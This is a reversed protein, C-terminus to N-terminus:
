SARRAADLMGDREPGLFGMALLVLDAKLEFESGPVPEFTSAATGNSWRSRRARAADHRPGDRRRQLARTSISYLASAAKRTRRRSASSTRGCRGRTARRARTPRGRCCSSSTSALARGPPARHRPLRRRHRRRRHHHRAQGERTIFETTTAARRRGRLPPEALTLYDMAFHIGQLERGPVPLDRPATPAAPWCSRTSTAGCSTSRRRRRRRQVGTRFMSAKARADADLRRDLIRKEMKFEPIGYRLLGGIRDAREFVTVSHGARNLQEAAALGAPGSGVVAVRRAPARRRRSRGHGLGRRVRSRHDVGRDGQDHGPRRQHRARVLRRVAGPVAARHVGPLQQDRAAARDGRQWRDRYVLDNWDPILNGLPCGQHCFPIGCDM